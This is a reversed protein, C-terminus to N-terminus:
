PKAAQGLALNSVMGLLATGVLTALLKRKM